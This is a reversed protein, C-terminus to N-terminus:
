KTQYTFLFLYIFLLLFYFDSSGNNLVHEDLIYFSKVVDSALLM